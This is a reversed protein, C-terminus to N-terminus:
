KILEVELSLAPFIRFVSREYYEKTANNINVLDEVAYNWVMLWRREFRIATKIESFDRFGYLENQFWESKVFHSFTKNAFGYRHTPDAYLDRSTFHPVRICLKGGKKLIRALEVLLVKYDLHELINDANIEEFQKDQFPLPLEELDWVVDTGKYKYKDLNLYGELPKEGCGLNLKYKM